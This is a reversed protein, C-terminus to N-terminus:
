HSKELRPTPAANALSFSISANWSFGNVVYYDDALVRSFTSLPGIENTGEDGKMGRRLKLLGPVVGYNLEVHIKRYLEMM